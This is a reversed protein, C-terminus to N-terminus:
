KNQQAIVDDVTKCNGLNLWYVVGNFDSTILESNTRLVSIALTTKGCGSMGHLALINHRTLQRLKSLLQKEKLFSFCDLLVFWVNLYEM